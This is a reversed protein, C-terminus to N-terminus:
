EPPWKWGAQRFISRLTGIPIDKVPHTLTVRGPLAPHKYQHHDGKSRVLTWGDAELRKLIDRSSLSRAM